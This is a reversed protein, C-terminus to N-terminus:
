ANDVSHWCVCGCVQSGSGSRQHNLHTEYGSTIINGMPQLSELGDAEFVPFSQELGLLPQTMAPAALGNMQQTGSHPFHELV